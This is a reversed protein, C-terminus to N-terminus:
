CKETDHALLNGKNGERNTKPNEDIDIQINKEPFFELLPLLNDCTDSVPLM